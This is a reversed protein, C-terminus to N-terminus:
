GQQGGWSESDGVRIYDLERQTLCVQMQALRTQGRSCLTLPGLGEQGM